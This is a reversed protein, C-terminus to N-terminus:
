MKPMDVREELNVLQVVDRLMHENFSLGRALFEKCHSALRFLSAFPEVIRTVKSFYGCCFKYSSTSESTRTNQTSQTQAEKRPKVPEFEELDETHLDRPISNTEYATTSETFYGHDEDSAQLLLSNFKNWSPTITHLTSLFLNLTRPDNAQLCCCEGLVYTLGILIRNRAINNHRLSCKLLYYNCQNDDYCLPKEFISVCSHDVADNSDISVM